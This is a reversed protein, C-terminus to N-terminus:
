KKTEKPKGATAPAKQEELYTASRLFESDAVTKGIMPAPPAAYTLEGGGYHLTIGVDFGMEPVMPDKPEFSVDYTFGDYRSSKKGIIKDPAQRTTSAPKAEGKKTAIKQVATDPQGPEFADIQAQADHRAEDLVQQRRVGVQRQSAMGAATAIVVLVSTTGVAMIATALLVELLTFGRSLRRRMTRHM